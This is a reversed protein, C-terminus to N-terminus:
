FFVTRQEKSAKMFTRFDRIGEMQKAAQKAQEIDFGENRVLFLM